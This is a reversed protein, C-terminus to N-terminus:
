RDLFDNVHERIRDRWEQEELARQEELVRETPLESELYDNISTIAAEAAEGISSYTAGHETRGDVIQIRIEPGDGQSAAELGPHVTRWNWTWVVHGGDVSPQPWIRIRLEPLDEVPQEPTLYVSDESEIADLTDRGYEQASQRQFDNITLM